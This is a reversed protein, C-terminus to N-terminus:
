LVFPFTTLGTLNVIISIPHGMLETVKTATPPTEIVGVIIEYSTELMPLPSSSSSCSTTLHFRADRSIHEVPLAKQYQLNIAALGGGDSVVLCTCCNWSGVVGEWGRENCTRTFPCLRKLGVFVNCFYNIEIVKKQWMIINHKWLRLGGEYLCILLLYSLPLAVFVTVSSSLLLPYNCNLGM